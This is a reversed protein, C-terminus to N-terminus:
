EEEGKGRMVSVIGRKSSEIFELIERGESALNMEKLLQVARPVSNGQRYIVRFVQKVENRAQQTLGGRRMGIINMGAITNVGAVVMFPPVDKSVGSLGQMMAFRGIRVFQHVTANGSIVAFDEVTVHGALLAGNTLIVRNKVISDHGVHSGAMFFCDNGIRTEAGPHFPRHISVYERIVNNNGIVTFTPEGKYALHQPKGGIVTHSHIENNEGITTGEHICAFPHIKTGAGVRCNKEILACPGIEASEHIEATPDIIATPHIPMPAECSPSIPALRNTRPRVRSM